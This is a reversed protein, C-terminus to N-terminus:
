AMAVIASSSRVPSIADMVPATAVVLDAGATTLRSLIPKLDDRDVADARLAAHRLRIGAALADGVLHVGDLLVLDGAEGRALARYKAVLPNQRSSIRQVTGPARGAVNSCTSPRRRATSAYCQPVM